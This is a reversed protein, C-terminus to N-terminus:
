YCSNIRRKKELSAISPNKSNANLIALELCLFIDYYEFGLTSSSYDQNIVQINYFYNNLDSFRRTTARSIIVKSINTRTKCLLNVHGQIRELMEPTFELGEAKIDINRM